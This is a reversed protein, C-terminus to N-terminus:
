RCCRGGGGAGAYGQAYSAGDGGAFGQGVTPNGGTGNSGNYEVVKSGSGLVEVVLLDPLSIRGGAGGGESIISSFQSFNHKTVLLIVNLGTASLACWWWWCNSYIYATGTAVYALLETQNVM